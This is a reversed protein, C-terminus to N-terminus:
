VGNCGATFHVRCPMVSQGAFLSLSVFHIRVWVSFFSACVIRHCSSFANGQDETAEEKAGEDHNHDDEDCNLHVLVSLELCGDCLCPNYLLLHQEWGDPIFYIFMELKEVFFIKIAEARSKVM